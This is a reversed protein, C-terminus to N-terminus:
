GSASSAASSRPRCVHTGSASTIGTSSLDLLNVHSAALAPAVERLGIDGIACGGFSVVGVKSNKSLGAAIAKLDASSLSLGSLRLEHLTEAHGILKGLAAFVKHMMAAGKEASAADANRALRPGKHVAEGGAKLAVGVLRNVADESELFRALAKLSDRGCADLNAEVRRKTLSELVTLDPNVPPMVQTECISIYAQQLATLRDIGARKAWAM